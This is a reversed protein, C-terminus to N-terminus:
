TPITLRALLRGEVDLLVRFPNRRVGLAPPAPVTLWSHQGGLALRLCPGLVRRSLLELWQVMPPLPGQPADPSLGTWAALPPQTVPLPLPGRVLSGPRPVTTVFRSLGGSDRRALYFM